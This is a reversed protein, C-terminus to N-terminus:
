PIASFYRCGAAIAAEAVAENGKMLIPESM